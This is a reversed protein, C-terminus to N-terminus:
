KQTKAKVFADFQEKYDKHWRSLAPRNQAVDNTSWEMRAKDLAENVDNDPCIIYFDGKEIRPMAYDVVQQPWWAGEPKETKGATNTLKTFTWGPVVLHATVRGATAGRLEHAVQEAFAKVGAKSVNYAPNGPPCTIGQKSGTIVVLGPENSNIVSETFANSGNIVGWLNVDLIKKWIDMKANSTSAGSASVGANLCLVNIKGFKDLVTESAKKMDDFSAVDAEIALVDSPPLNLKSIAENLSSSSNDILALKLNQNAFTSALAYGIGGFGGGTIVAVNGAKIAPHM